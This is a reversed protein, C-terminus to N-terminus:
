IYRRQFRRGLRTLIEYSITDADTASGHCNERAADTDTARTVNVISSDM